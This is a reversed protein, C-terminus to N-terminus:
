RLKSFNEKNTSNSKAGDSDIIYVNKNIFDINFVKSKPINLAFERSLTTKGMGNGGYIYTISKDLPINIDVKTELNKFKFETM